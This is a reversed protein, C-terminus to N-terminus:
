SKHEWRSPVEKTGKKLLEAEKKCLESLIEISPVHVGFKEKNNSLYKANLGRAKLLSIYIWWNAHMKEYRVSKKGRFNKKKQLFEIWYKSAALGSYYDKYKKTNYLEKAVKLSERYLPALDVKKKSKIIVIIWPFKEAIEYGETKDFYTRCFLEAGKKQYGTILGWEAVEILDIAIVPWGNDISKTIMKRMDEKSKKNKGAHKFSDAFVYEFEYGLKEMIESGIDRPVTADPSSPCLDKHFAFRFGYGSLGLIDIYSIKQGFKQDLLYLCALFSNEMGSAWELKGLGDIIVADKDRKHEPVIDKLYIGLFGKPITLPIEKGGRSVIVEVNDTKVLVKLVDLHEVSLVKQKNYMVLKDGAEAGAKKMESKKPFGTIIVGESKMEEETLFVGLFGKCITLKIEEKGRLVVVEVKDTKVRKKLKGLHKISKVPVGNYTVLWDGVEAGAFKLVSNEKFGVILIGEDEDEDEAEKLFEIESYVAGSFLSVLIFVFLLGIMAKSKM